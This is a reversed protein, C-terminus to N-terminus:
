TIRYPCTKNLSCQACTEAQTWTPMDPGIGLVASISKCPFMIGTSSLSVGIQEASALRLLTQQETIPFGPMGPSLPSSAQNGRSIAEQRLTKCVQVTLTDIAATGIGDLLLGRLPEGKKLQEAVKNELRPGITCVVTVFEKSKSLISPLLEGNIIAGNNLRVQNDKIESIPYINYASVPELLHLEKMEELLEETIAIMEPRSSRGRIGQRRLIHDLNFNLQAEHIITVHKGEQPREGFEPLIM